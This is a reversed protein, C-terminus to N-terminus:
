LETHIGGPSRSDHPQLHVAYCAQTGPRKILLHDNPWKPFFFVAFFTDRERQSRACQPSAEEKSSSM